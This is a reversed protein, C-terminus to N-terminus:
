LYTINKLDKIFPSGILIILTGLLNSFSNSSKNIKYKSDSSTKICDSYKFNKPAIDDLENLNDALINEFITSKKAALSNLYLYMSVFLSKTESLNGSSYVFIFENKHATSNM